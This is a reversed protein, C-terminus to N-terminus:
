SANKLVTALAEHADVAKGVMHSDEVEQGTDVLVQYAEDATLSPNLSRMVGVLGAVLPTAMSTGSKAGYGGDPVLSMIDVGPAAIPRKLATNTNSFKAKRLGSDIASVAIVGEINAPMHFAGNQNSNGAAALVIVDRELAFEVADRIVRPPRPSYDGLSMSIVDAGDTTADIIAQAISEITGMGSSSLARYSTVDVFQGEWNLSAVGLGNNTAAGAIGACHTGHGHADDPAPSALFTGRIDEHRADVGTDLIAVVGKRVAQQKSLLEHAQTIKAAELAWQSDALPDNAIVKWPANAGQDRAAEVPPLLGVSRNTEVFDVNESDALLADRLKKLLEIAIKGPKWVLYVQALDADDALTVSPFAREFSAGHQELISRIEEIDDDEGLEVLLAADTTAEAIEDDPNTFTAIGRGLGGAVLAAVGIVFVPLAPRRNAILIGAGVLFAIGFDFSMGGLTNLLGAASFMRILVAIGGMALGALAVLPRRQERTAEWAILGVGATAILLSASLPFHM